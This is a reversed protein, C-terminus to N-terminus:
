APATSAHPRLSRISARNWWWGAMGFGINVLATVVFVGQWGFAASAWLALPVYVILM